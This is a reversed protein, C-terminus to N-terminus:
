PLQGASAEGGHARGLDASGGELVVLWGVHSAEDRSRRRTCPLVAVVSFVAVVVVAVVVVAVAVVISSIISLRNRSAADTTTREEEGGPSGRRGRRPGAEGTRTSCTRWRGGEVVRLLLPLLYDDDTLTRDPRAHWARLRRGIRPPITTRPRRRRGGRWRLHRRRIRLIRLFSPSPPSAARWSATRRGPPM